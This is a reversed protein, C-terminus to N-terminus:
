KIVKVSKPLLDLNVIMDTDCTLKKLKKLKLLKSIDTVYNKSIDLEELSPMKDVFDLNDIYTDSLNLKKLNPFHSLFKNAYVGFKDTSGKDVDNNYIETGSLDLEKLVKNDKLSKVSLIIYNIGSGDSKPSFSVIKTVQPLSFVDTYDGFHAISGYGFNITRLKPLKALYQAMDPKILWDYDYLTLEELNNMGAVPKFSYSENGIDEIELRKISSMGSIISLDRARIDVDSLATLKSLNPFTINYNWIGSISLKKLSKLTALASVDTLDGCSDLTLSTLSICNKLGNLKIVPCSDISLSKLYPMNKVFDLTKLDKVNKFALSEIQPIGSFVNFHEFTTDYGNISLSKLKTLSTIGALDWTDKESFGLSLIEVNPFSSLFSLDKIADGKKLSTFNLVKLNKYTKLAALNKEIDYLSTTGLGYINSVNLAPMHTLYESSTGTYYHLKKLNKFDTTDYSDGAPVIDGENSFDLTELETFVQFDEETINKTGAIKLKVPKDPAGYDATKKAYTFIWPTSDNKESTIPVAERDVKLYKISEYDAKKIESLPKKFVTEVFDIVAKSEPKTRYPVVFPSSSTEEATSVTDSYINRSSTTKMIQPVLIILVAGLICFIFTLPLASSPVTKRNYDPSRGTDGIHLEKINITQNINPKEEELLFKTGCYPCTTFKGMQEEKIDLNGQCQPCKMSIIKM